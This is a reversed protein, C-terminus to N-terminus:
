MEALRVHPEAAPQRLLHPAGRDVCCALDTLLLRKNPPEEAPQRM